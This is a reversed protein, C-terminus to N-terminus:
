KTGSREQWIQIHQPQNETVANGKRLSTTVPRSVTVTVELHLNDWQKARKPYM